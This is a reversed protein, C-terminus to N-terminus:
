ATDERQTWSPAFSYARRHYSSYREIGVLLCAGNVLGPGRMGKDEFHDVCM